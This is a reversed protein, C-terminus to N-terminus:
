HSFRKRSLATVNIPKKRKAEEIARAGAITRGPAFIQIAAGVQRKCALPGRSQSPAETREHASGTNKLSQRFIAM